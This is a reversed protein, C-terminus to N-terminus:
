AIRVRGKGEVVSPSNCAPIADSGRSRLKKRDRGHCVAHGDVLSQCHGNFRLRRSRAAHSPRGLEGAEHADEAAANGAAARAAIGEFIVAFRFMAFAFHFSLPLPISLNPIM